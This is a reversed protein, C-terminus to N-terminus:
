VKNPLTIGPRKGRSMEKVLYNKIEKEIERIIVPYSPSLCM